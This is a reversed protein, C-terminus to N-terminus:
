TVEEDIKRNIIEAEKDSCKIEMHYGKSNGSAEYYYGNAKLWRCLNEKEAKDNLEVSRFTREADAEAEIIAYVIYDLYDMNDFDDHRSTRQLVFKVGCKNQYSFYEKKGEQDFDLRSENSFVIFNAHNETVTRREDNEDIKGISEMGRECKEDNWRFVSGCFVSTHSTLIEVFQKKTIKEM